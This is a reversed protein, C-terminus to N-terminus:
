EQGPLAYPIVRIRRNVGAVELWFGGMSAPTIKVAPSHLAPTYEYRDVKNQQAWRTGDDLSFITTGNWGAFEGVLKSQLPEEKEPKESARSLTILASFWGPKKGAPPTVSPVVPLIPPRAAVEQIKAEAVRAKQEAERVKKEADRVNAEAVATKQELEQRSAAAQERVEAVIGKKYREVLIELRALEEPTLKKLGAAGFDDAPLTQVFGSEAHAWGAFALMVLAMITKKM